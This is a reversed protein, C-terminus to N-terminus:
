GECGQEGEEASVPRWLIFDGAAVCAYSDPFSLGAAAAIKEMTLDVGAQGNPDAISAPRSTVFWAKEYPFDRYPETLHFDTIDHAAPYGFITLALYDPVRGGLAYPITPNWMFSVDVIPTGDTWGQAEAQARLGTITEALRPELLLISGRSGIETPYRQDALPAARFPAQWGSFVSGAAFAATVLMSAGAFSIAGRGLMPRPIAVVGALLLAGAALSAQAYIGNGSGFAFVFPLLALVLVGAWRPLARPMTDRTAGPLRSAALFAAVAILLCATTVQANAITFPSFESRVGPVPLGALALASLSTIMFGALRIVLWDKRGIVPVAMVLLGLGLAVTTPSTMGALVGMVDSPILLAARVASGATQLPDPAPMQLALRFVDVADCPWVRLLFAIALWLPMLILNLAAWAGAARVGVAVLMLLTTLLLMLPLTTPKAPFTTFLALSSVGALVSFRLRAARVSRTHGTRRASSLATFAAAAALTLGILTSWNYSPTRLMPAYFLLSGLAGAVTALTLFTIAARRTESGALNARAASWGLWSSVGVLLVAGITRFSAIDYGAAAFLPHLHWGSPFGWAASPSPPDAALLYLGEDSLDIGRDSALVRELVWWAATVAILALCFVGLVKALLSRNARQVRWGEDPVAM